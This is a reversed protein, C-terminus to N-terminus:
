SAHPGVVGALSTTGEAPAFGCSRLAEALAGQVSSALAITKNTREAFRQAALFIQLFSVDIETAEFCDLVLHEGSDLANRIARCTEASTPTTLPGRLTLRIAVGAHTM